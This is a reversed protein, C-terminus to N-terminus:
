PITVRYDEVEGYTFTECPSPASGWKMSVRMRTTGSPAFSPVIFSTSLTSSTAIAFVQESTAFTGDKDFDIWVRWNETYSSSPTFGPTVVITNSGRQLSIPANATFDGFGGNNNSTNTWTGFQLSRIWEWTSTSGRSSCYTPTGPPPPPPAAGITYTM